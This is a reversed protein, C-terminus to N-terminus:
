NASYILWFYPIGGLKPAFSMLFFFVFFSLLVLNTKGHDEFLQVFSITFNCMM